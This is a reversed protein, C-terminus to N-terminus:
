KKDVKMFSFGKTKKAKGKLCGSICTASVNLERAAQALTLYIKQTELCLFAISNPRPKDFKSDSLIKKVKESCPAHKSKPPINAPDNCFKELEKDDYLIGPIPNAFLFGQTRFTKKKICHSVRNKFIGLDRAAQLHSQYYKKNTLCIVPNGGFTRGRKSISLNKRHEETRIKGKNAISIKRREEPSHTSGNGGSSMNYGFDVSCFKEIYFKELENLSNQDYAIDLTYKEFSDKGYKNIAHSIKYPRNKSALWVHRKWRKDLSETTLGIYVKGNIPNRLMYIIGFPKM